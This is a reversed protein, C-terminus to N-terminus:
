GAVCALLDRHVGAPGAVVDGSEFWRAGGEWDTLLGGAELVLLAGAAQDWPRLGLEFYGDHIGAATYALDLAASGARRIAKARYFSREMAGLMRPFREGLQFAFGVAVFAGDLGPQGSVHMPAGNWRAGQGRAATFEDGKIPDLVCGVLPGQEDWLAVSVCWHAFGQLFNLTGDLPDVIWRRGGSGHAGTEEGLFADQPFAAALHARLAAESEQDAASVLDNKGKESISGPAVRRFHRRLVAGAERAAASATALEQEYM